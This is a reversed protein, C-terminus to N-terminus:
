FELVTSLLFLQPPQAQKTKSRWSFAKLMKGNFINAKINKYIDKTVNLCNEKM